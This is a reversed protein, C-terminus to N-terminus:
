KRNIENEIGLSELATVLKRIHIGSINTGHFILWRDVKGLLSKKGVSLCFKVIADDLIYYELNDYPIIEGSRALMGHDYM